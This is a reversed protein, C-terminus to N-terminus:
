KKRPTGGRAGRSFAGGRGREDGMCCGSGTAPAGRLRKNWPPRRPRVMKAIAVAVGALVALGAVVALSMLFFGTLEGTDIDFSRALWWIALVAAIAALVITRVPTEPPRM